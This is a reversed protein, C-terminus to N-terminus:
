ADTAADEEGILKKILNWMNNLKVRMMHAGSEVPISYSLGELFRFDRLLYERIQEKTMKPEPNQLVAM